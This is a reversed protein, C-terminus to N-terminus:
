DSNAHPSKHKAIMASIYETMKKVGHKTLAVQSARADDDQSRTILGQEELVTLWRLGTTAPVCAAICASSVRIATGDLHAIFLDLLIDWAPERLMNGGFVKARARRRRYEDSAWNRLAATSPKTPQWTAPQMPLVNQSGPHSGNANLLDAMAMMREGARLLEAAAQGLLSTSGFPEPSAV